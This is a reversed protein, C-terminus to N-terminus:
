VSYRLDIVKLELRNRGGWNNIQFECALDVKDIRSDISDFEKALNFGVADIRADNQVAQFRVHSEERGIK